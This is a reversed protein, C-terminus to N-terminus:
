WTPYISLLPDVPFPLPWPLALCSSFAAPLFPLASPHGPAPPSPPHRWCTGLAGGCFPSLGAGPHSHSADLLIGKHHRGRTKGESSGSLLPADWVYPGGLGRPAETDEGASPPPGPRRHSSTRAQRFSPSSPRLGALCEAPGAWM